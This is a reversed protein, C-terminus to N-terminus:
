PGGEATSGWETQPGGSGSPDGSSEKARAAALLPHARVAKTVFSRFHSCRIVCTYSSWTQEYEFYHTPATVALGILMVPGDDTPM